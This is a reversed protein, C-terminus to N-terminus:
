QKIATSILIPLLKSIKIITVLEYFPVHLLFNIFVEHSATHVRDM